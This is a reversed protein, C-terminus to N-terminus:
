GGGPIVEVFVCDTAAVSVDIRTPLKVQRRSAGSGSDRIVVEAMGSGVLPLSIRQAKLSINALIYGRGRGRPHEWASVLVVPFDLEYRKKARWDWFTITKKPVNLRPPHLMKGLILYDRAPTRMMQTSAKLMHFITPAVEGADLVRSWVAGAPTKGCVLNLAQFLLAADWHKSSLIASDGGYGLCYEHYLYTFLPVGRAGPGNRPWTRQKYDRAHYADLYQIYLENPEEMLWIFDPNRKKGEARVTEFIRSLNEYEWKGHGPPHGHQKSYCAPGGGGVIQDAQVATIGLAQCRAATSRLHELAFPTAFCIQAYRGVDKDPKGRLLPKGDFDAVAYKLGVKRFNEWDDYSGESTKKELTWKLGSLFVLSYNGGNRLENTVAKFDREGGFPPFYDPTIWAGHKEWAMLMAVVPHELAERYSKINHLLLEPKFGGDRQFRESRMSVTYFFPAQKLWEPVDEREVLRKSCWPQRVAWSKYIDAADYWEGSFVGVMTDYPVECDSRPVEPVWHEVILEFGNRKRSLGLRKVNGEGDHTAVYLGGAKTGYAMLQASLNGPYQGIASYGVPFNKWPQEYLIGDCISNVIYDGEGSGFKTPAVIVPFKIARVALPTRNRVKIGFAVLPSQRTITATCDVDIDFEGHKRNSIHIQLSGDREAESITSDQADSSSLVSVKGQSDVLTIRYLERREWEPSILELGAGKHWLSRLAGKASGSFTIRLFPNEASIDNAEGGSVVSGAGACWVVGAAVVFICFL